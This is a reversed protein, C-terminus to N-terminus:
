ALLRKNNIGDIIIIKLSIVIEEKLCNKVSFTPVFGISTDKMAFVLVVKWIKAKDNKIIEGLKPCGKKIKVM